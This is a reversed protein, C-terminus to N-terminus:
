YTEPSGVTVTPPPNVAQRVRVWDYSVTTTDSGDWLRVDLMAPPPQMPAYIHTQYPVDELRYMSQDGYNEVGYLHPQTDLPHDTGYWPSDATVGRFDPCAANQNLTYWHLWPAVDMTGNQFGAWWDSNSASQAIAVYDVARKAPFPENKTVVGNDRVGGGGCVLKGGSVSVTNLTTWTSTDLTTFGDYFEFVQAPDKPAAPPSPNGCYLWYEGTSTAGSAHPASLRFWTWQPPGVTDIVRTLETTAYVIRIDDRNATCPAAGVDFPMGVQYGAALDDASTNAITIPMRVGWMPDWWERTADAMADSGGPADGEGGTIALGHRFSCAALGVLVLGRVM